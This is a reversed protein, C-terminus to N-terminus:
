DEEIELRATPACEGVGHPVGIDRWHSPLLQDDDCYFGAPTRRENWATHFLWRWRGEDQDWCGVQIARDRPAQECPGWVMEVSGVKVTPELDLALQSARQTM